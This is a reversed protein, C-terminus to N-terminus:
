GRCALSEAPTALWDKVASVRRLLEFMIMWLKSTIM